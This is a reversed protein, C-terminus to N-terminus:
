IDAVKVYQRLDKALTGFGTLEEYTERVEKGPEYKGARHSVWKCFITEAELPNIPREYRPPAYFRGLKDCLVGVAEAISYNYHKAMIAAGETPKKDMEVNVPVRATIFGLRELMDILKFSAWTGWQPWEEIRKTLTHFDHTGILSLIVDHPTYFNKQLYDLGQNMWRGRFYRRTKGRPGLETAVDIFHDWDKYDCLMSAVGCHSFLCYALIWRRVRNKPWPDKTRTMARWLLSYEPHLDDLEILRKGFTIVDLHKKM